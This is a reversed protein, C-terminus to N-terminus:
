SGTSGVVGRWRFFTMKYRANAGYLANGTNPDDWARDQTRRRMIGRLDHEEALLFWSRPNTLYHSVMFRLGKDGLSNMDNDATEPKLESEILEQAKWRLQPPVILIKPIMKMPVGAENVLTEFKDMAAQLTTRSLSGDIENSVTDGSNILPHDDAILAKGDIGVRDDSFASNLLDWFKLEFTYAMSKGLEAPMTKMHGTLDDEYAEETTAFGLGSKDFRIEKENGQVPTEFHFPEGQGQDPAAGFGAIEGEKYSHEGWDMVKAVQSWEPEHRDYNDFFVEHYDPYLTQSFGQTTAIGPHGSTSEAM